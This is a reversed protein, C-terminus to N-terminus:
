RIDGQFIPSVSACQFSVYYKLLSSIVYLILEESRFELVYTFM